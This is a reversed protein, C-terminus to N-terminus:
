YGEQFQRRITRPTEGTVRRFLLTLMRSDQLGVRSAVTTNDLDTTAFLMRAQDVRMRTWAQHLSTGTAESFKRELTRRPTQLKRALEDITFLEGAHVTMTKLTEKILADGGVATEISDRAIVGVPPIRIPAPPPEAGAALKCALKSARIGVRYAPLLISSLSVPSYANERHDDDVGLVAVDQPVRLGAALAADLLIRAIGDTAALVAVPRPLAAIAQIDIHDQTTKPYGPPPSGPPSCLQLVRPTAGLEALRNTFGEARDDSYVSPTTHQFAFSRYGCKWLYDAAMKGAARDDSVVQPVGPNPFRASATVIVPAIAKAKELLPGQPIHGVVVDARFKTETLAALGQLNAVQLSQANKDAWWAKAGQLVLHSYWQDENGVM